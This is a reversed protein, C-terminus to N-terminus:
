SLHSCLPDYGTTTHSDQGVSTCALEYGLRPVVPPPSSPVGGGKHKQQMVINQFSKVKLPYGTMYEVLYPLYQSNYRQQTDTVDDLMAAWIAAM